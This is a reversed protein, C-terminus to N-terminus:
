WLGDFSATDYVRSVFVNPLANGESDEQQWEVDHHPAMELYHTVELLGDNDGIEFMNYRLERAGFNMTLGGYRTPPLSIGSNNLFQERQLQVLRIIDVAEDPYTVVRAQTTGISRTAGRGNNIPINFLPRIDYFVPVSAISPVVLTYKDGPQPPPLRGNLGPTEYVVRVVCVGNLQTAPLATGGIYRVSRGVVKLNPAAISWAEGKIPLGLSSLAAFGDDTNCWYDRLGRVGTPLEEITPAEAGFDNRGTILSATPPM